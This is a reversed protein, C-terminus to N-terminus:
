QLHRAVSTLGVANVLTEQSPFSATPLIHHSASCRFTPTIPNPIVGASVQRFFRRAGYMGQLSVTPIIKRWALCWRGSSAVLGLLISPLMVWVTFELFAAASEEFFGWSPEWAETGVLLWMLSVIVFLPITIFALARLLSVM